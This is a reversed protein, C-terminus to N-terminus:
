LDIGFEWDKRGGGEGGTVTLENELDTLASRHQLHM